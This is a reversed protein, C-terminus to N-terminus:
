LAISFPLLLASQGWGTFSGGGVRLLLVLLLLQLPGSQSIAQFTQLGLSALQLYPHATSMWVYTWSKWAQMSKKKSQHM